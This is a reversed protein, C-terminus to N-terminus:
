YVHVVCCRIVNYSYIASYLLLKFGARCILGGLEAPLANPKLHFTARELGSHVVIKMGDINAEQGVDKCTFIRLSFSQLTAFWISYVPKLFSNWRSYVQINNKDYLDLKLSLQLTCMTYNDRILLVQCVSYKYMQIIPWDTCFYPKMSVSNYAKPFRLIYLICPYHGLGVLGSFAFPSSVSLVNEDTEATEWVNIMRKKDSSYTVQGTIDIPRRGILHSTKLM